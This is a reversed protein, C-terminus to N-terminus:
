KVVPLGDEIWANYGGSLDYVTTFGKQQMIGMAAKSRHGTRCYILYNAHKNLTDLYDSFKQTQFYDAQKANNLHGANYEGITRVDILTYKGTNLYQNFQDPALDNFPSVVGLVSANSSTNHILPIFSVGILIVLIVLGSIIYKNMKNKRIINNCIPQM